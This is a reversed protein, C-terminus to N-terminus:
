EVKFVDEAVADGRSFEVRLLHTTGPHLGELSLLDALSVTLPDRLTIIEENNMGLNKIETGYDQGTQDLYKKIAIAGIVENDVYVMITEDSMFTVPNVVIDVDFVDSQKFTSKEMEISLPDDQVALGSFSAYGGVIVLIAVMAVIFTAIYEREVRM